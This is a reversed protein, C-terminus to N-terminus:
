SLHFSCCSPAGKAAPGEHQGFHWYHFMTYLVYLLRNLLVLCLAGPIGRIGRVPQGFVPVTPEPYAQTFSHKNRVTRYMMYPSRISSPHQTSKHDGSWWSCLHVAQVGRLAVDRCTGSIYQAFWAESLCANSSMHSQYNIYCKLTFFM